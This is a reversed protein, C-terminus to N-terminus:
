QGNVPGTLEVTLDWRDHIIQPSHTAILMDFGSLVRAEALDALFRQQWFVHLSLEPEDILLLSDPRTNFLLEYLLVVMHQEGSSLQSPALKRGDRTFIAFGENRDFTMRKQMFREGVVRLMLDLRMSLDDFVALKRRTDGIYVALVHRSKDDAAELADWEIDDDALLGAHVLSQRKRELAALEERLTELSPTEREPMKLLRLPFSRDLSQSLRGYEALTNMIRDRLEGAYIDITPRYDRAREHHLLRETNILTVDVTRKLESFWSPVPVYRENSKGVTFEQTGSGADSYSFELTATGGDERKVVNLSEGGTFEVMLSDFPISFFLRHETDPNFLAHILSLTYSKGYGNPGYIITIGEEVHLPIRHTFIGFLGSVTILSIKM